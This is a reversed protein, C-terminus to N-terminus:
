FSRDDVPMSGLYPVMRQVRSYTSGAMSTNSVDDLDCPDTVMTSATSLISNMRHKRLFLVPKGVKDPHYAQLAGLELGPQMLPGYKILTPDIGPQPDQVTFPDLGKSDM